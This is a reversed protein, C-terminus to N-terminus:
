LGGPDGIWIPLSSLSQGGASALQTRPLALALLSAFAIVLTVVMALNALFSAPPLRHKHWLDQKGPNQGPGSKDPLATTDSQAASHSKM